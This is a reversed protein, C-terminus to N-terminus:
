QKSGHALIRVILVINQEVWCYIYVKFYIIKYKLYRRLVLFVGLIHQELFIM